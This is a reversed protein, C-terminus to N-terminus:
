DAMKFKYIQLSSEYNAVVFVRRTSIKMKILHIKVSPRGYIPDAM